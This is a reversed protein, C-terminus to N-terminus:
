INTIQKLTFKQAYLCEEFKKIGFNCASAKKQLTPYNQESESYTRSVHTVTKELGDKIRQSLVALIGKGSEDGSVIIPLLIM